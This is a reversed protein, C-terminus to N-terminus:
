VNHKELTNRLVPKSLDTEKFFCLADSFNPILDQYLFRWESVGDRATDVLRKKFPVLEFHQFRM